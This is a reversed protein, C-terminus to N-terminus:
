RGKPTLYVTSVFRNKFTRYRADIESDSLSHFNNQNFIRYLYHQYADSIPATTMYILRGKGKLQEIKMMQTVSLAYARKQKEQNNVNMKGLSSESFGTGVLVYRSNRIISKVFEDDFYNYAWNT